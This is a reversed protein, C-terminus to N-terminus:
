ETEVISTSDSIPLAIIVSGASIGEFCGTTEPDLASSDRVLCCSILGIQWQSLVTYLLIWCILEDISFPLASKAGM